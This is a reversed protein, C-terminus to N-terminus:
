STKSIDPWHTHTTGSVYLYNRFMLDPNVAVTLQTHWCDRCVAVGLPFEELPAKGDHYSNALPQRGLDLYPELDGGGCALCSSIPQSNV